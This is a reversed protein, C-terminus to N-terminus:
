SEDTVAQMRVMIIPRVLSKKSGDFRSTYSSNLFITETSALMLQHKIMKVQSPKTTM